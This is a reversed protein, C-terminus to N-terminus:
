VVLWIADNYRVPLYMNFRDGWFVGYKGHLKMYFSLPILPRIMNEFCLMEDNVLSLLILIMKCYANQNRTKVQHTYITSILDSDNADNMLVRVAIIGGNSWLLNYIIEDVYIYIYGTMVIWCRRCYSLNDGVHPVTSIFYGDISNWMSHMNRHIIYM